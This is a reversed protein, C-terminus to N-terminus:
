GKVNCTKVGEYKERQRKLAHQDLGPYAARLKIAFINIIERRELYKGGALDLIDPVNTPANAPDKLYALLPGSDWGGFFSDAVLNRIGSCRKVSDIYDLDHSHGEKSRELTRVGNADMTVRFKAPCMGPERRTRKRGDRKEGKDATKWMRQLRCGGWFKVAKGPTRNHASVDGKNHLCWVNDM